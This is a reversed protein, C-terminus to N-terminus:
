LKKTFGKIYITTNAPANDIAEQITKYDGSGNQDVTITLNAPDIIIVRVSVYCTSQPQHHAQASVNLNILAISLFLLSAYIKLTARM